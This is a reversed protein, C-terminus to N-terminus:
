RAVWRLLWVMQWWFVMSVPLMALALAKSIAVFIM